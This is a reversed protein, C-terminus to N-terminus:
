TGEGIVLVQSCIDAVMELYKVDENTFDNLQDSDIDLIMRVENNVFVPIVVESKSASSCAIHGPFLDVDPVLISKKEKWATGCVGKGMAIRTCALPGQFPGLVLSDNKVFYFGIWFFGFVEKLVAVINALNAISDKEGAVVAQLQPLIIQYREERSAENNFAITEAM